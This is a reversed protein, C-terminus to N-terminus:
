VATGPDTEDPRARTPATPPRDEDRRRRRAEPDREADRNEHRRKPSQERSDASWERRNVTTCFFPLAGPRKLERKKQEKQRM